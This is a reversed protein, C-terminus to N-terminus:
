ADVLDNTLNVLAISHYYLTATATWPGRSIAASTPNNKHLFPQPASYDRKWSYTRRQCGDTRFNGM